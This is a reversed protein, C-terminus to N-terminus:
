IRGIKIRFRERLDAIGDTNQEVDKKLQKLGYSVGSHNKNLMKASERTTFQRESFEEYCLRRAFVDERKNSNGKLKSVTTGLMRSAIIIIDEENFECFGILKVAEKDISGLLNAAVIPSWNKKNLHKQLKKRVEEKNM